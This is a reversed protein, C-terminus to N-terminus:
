ARRGFAYRTFLYDDGAKLSVLRARPANAPLFMVGDVLSNRPAEPTRGALQPAITLFLEDIAREELFQGFLTPGGETLIRRGGTVETAIRVLESARLPERESVIRVGVHAPASALRTAGRATTAILVPGGETFAPLRLDIAGSATVIITLPRAAAGLASRLAAFDARADPFAAAATWISDPEKRLTGAGVIVADAVARLLGLILRDGPYGGSVHRARDQGPVAFSVIGDITSVFNAFVHTGGDPFRLPGGYREALTPPLPLAAGDERDLLTQLV